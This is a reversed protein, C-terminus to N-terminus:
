PAYSFGVRPAWDNPNSDYLAEGPKFVRMHGPPCNYGFCSGPPFGFAFQTERALKQGGILNTRYDAWPQYYEYRLGLNLTLKSSARFDDQFYFNYLWGKLEGSAESSLGRLDYSYGLLFDAFPSGSN